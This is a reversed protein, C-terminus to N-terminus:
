IVEKEFPAPYVCVHSGGGLEGYFATPPAERNMCKCYVLRPVRVGLCIWVSVCVCVCRPVRVCVCVQATECVCVCVQATKSWPLDVCVCACRPLRVSM